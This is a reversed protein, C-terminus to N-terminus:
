CMEPMKDAFEKNELLSLSKIYTMFSATNTHGMQTQIAAQSMGAKWAKVVGTHKWSYLTYDSSYGLRKLVKETFRQSIKQAKKPTPGPVYEKSFIYHEPDAEFIGNEQLLRKFAPTLEVHREKRNKSISGPIYLCNDRGMGINKIKLQCIENPRALTYYMFQCLFLQRPFHEKMYDVLERIQEDSFAINRGMEIPLKEIKNIPSLMPVEEPTLERYVYNFLTKIFGIVNNRSRNQYKKVETLWDGFEVIHNKKIHFFLPNQWGYIQNFEILLKFAKQYENISRERSQKKRQYQIFFEIAENLSLKDPNEQIAEKRSLVKDERTNVYCDESLILNLEQIRQRAYRKRERESLFQNVQYERIRKRKATAVDFVWYSIFWKQDKAKPSPINLRAPKFNPNMFSVSKSTKTRSLLGDDTSKLVLNSKSFFFTSFILVKKQRPPLIRLNIKGKVFSNLLKINQYKYM